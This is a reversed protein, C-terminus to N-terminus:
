SKSHDQLLRESRLMMGRKASEAQIHSERASETQEQLHLPLLDRLTVKNLTRLFSETAGILMRKLACANQYVCDSHAFEFCEAMYFDIESRRV